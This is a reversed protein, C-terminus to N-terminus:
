FLLNNETLYKYVRNYMIKELIKSFCRLVSIPRYNSVLEKKGAKFAPIVKAIKMSDPFIRLSLSSDFIKMLPQNIFSYVAKIINVHLGDSGPSKNNKLTKFTEDFEDETLSNDDLTIAVELFYSRYSIDGEPIKSALSPGVNVYYENLKDAIPQADNIEIEDVIIQKPFTDNINKGKGIIEKMIKCTNKINNESLELKRQYYNKNAIKKIKELLNTYTEYHNENEITRRKLFKEYLRQKRKSCKQLGKTIWPTGLHKTKIEIEKNPFAIDYLDSFIKLFNDYALNPSDLLLFRNWDINKLPFEFTHINEETFDRKM